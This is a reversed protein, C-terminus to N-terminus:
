QARTWVSYIDLPLLPSFFGKDSDPTLPSRDSQGHLVSAVRAGSVCHRSYCLFNAKIWDQVRLPDPIFCGSVMERSVPKQKYEQCPSFNFSM